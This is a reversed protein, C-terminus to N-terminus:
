GLCLVSVGGAAPVSPFPANGSTYGDKGRQEGRARPQKSPCSRELERRPPKGGSECGSATAPATGARSCGTWGLSGGARAQPGPQSGAGPLFSFVRLRM